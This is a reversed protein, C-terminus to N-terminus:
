RGVSLRRALSHPLGAQAMLAQTAEIDYEVRHWAVYASDTDIVLYSARADGDRPQGVSGPNLIAREDGFNLRTRPTVRVTQM